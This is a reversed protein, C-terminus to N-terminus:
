RRTKNYLEIFDYLWEWDEKPMLEEPLYGLGWLSSIRVITQVPVELRGSIYSSITGQTVGFLEAVGEQSGIGTIAKRLVENDKKKAM